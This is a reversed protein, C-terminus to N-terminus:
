VRGAEQWARQIWNKVEDDVEEASFLELHHTYRNASTQVIEKWRSSPDPAHFSVTMVLPAMKGKLYFAPIWAVAINAKLRFAVQSKSVRMDFPGLTDCISKLAEFIVRSEPYNGFFVDLEKMGIITDSVSYCVLSDFLGLSNGM